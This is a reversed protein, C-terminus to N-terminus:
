QSIRKYGIAASNLRGARDSDKKRDKAPSSCSTAAPSSSGDFDGTLHLLLCCKENRPSGTQITQSCLNATERARKLGVAMSARGRSSWSEESGCSSSSAPPPSPPMSSWPVVQNEGDEEGDGDGNVDDEDVEGGGGGDGGEDRGHTEGQGEEDDEARSKRGDVCGECISLTPGLKSGSAKWPTPRQCVNCLLSRLHRAVLFNARHVKADCSWCLSAQDSECFTRAPVDCLECEKMEEREEASSCSERFYFLLLSLSHLLTKANKRKTSRLQAGLDLYRFRIVASSRGRSARGTAAHRARIVAPLVATMFRVNRDGRPERQEM